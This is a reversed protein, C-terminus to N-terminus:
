RKFSIIFWFVFVFFSVILLLTLESCLSDNYYKRFLKGCVFDIFMNLERREKKNAYDFCWAESTPCVICIREVFSIFFFFYSLVDFICSVSFSFFVLPWHEFSINLCYVCHTEYGSLYSIVAVGAARKEREGEWEMSATTTITKTIIIIIIVIISTSHRSLVEVLM